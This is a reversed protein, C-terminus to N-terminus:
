SVMSPFVVIKATCCFMNALGDFLIYSCVRFM